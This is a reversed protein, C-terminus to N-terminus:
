DYAVFKKFFDVNYSYQEMSRGWSLDDSEPGQRICIILDDPIKSFGDLNSAYIDGFPMGFGDDLAYEPVEDLISSLPALVGLDLLMDYYVPDVIYIFSGGARIETNFRTLIETDYAIYVYSPDSENDAISAISLALIDATLVGDGNYDSSFEEEISQNIMDEVTPSLLNPGVYMINLDPDHKNILSIIGSLIVIFAAGGIIIKWKHDDWIDILKQKFTRKEVKDDM